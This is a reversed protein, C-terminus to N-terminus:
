AAGFSTRHKHDLFFFSRKVKSGKKRMGAQTSPDDVQLRILCEKHLSIERVGDKIKLGAPCFKGDNGM